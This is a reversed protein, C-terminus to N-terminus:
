SGAETSVASLSPSDRQERMTRIADRAAAQLLSVDSGLVIMQAGRELWRAADDGDRAYIGVRAGSQRIQGISQDLLAQVDPHDQNGPHGLDNSLDFPGLFWLDAADLADLLEPLAAVGARSEIQCVTVLREQAERLYQEVSIQGFRAARHALSLSRHGGPAFTTAQRTANLTATSTVDTVQIGVVGADLLRGATSIEAASIRALVPVSRVDAARAIGEVDRLSLGSHELDAVLFDFGSGALLEAVAPDSSKIFTGLIEDGSHLRSRLSRGSGVKETM